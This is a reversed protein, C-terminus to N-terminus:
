RATSCCAAHDSRRVLALYADFLVDRSAHGFIEGLTSGCWDRIAAEPVGRSIALEVSTESLAYSLYSGATMPVAVELEEYGDLRLGSRGYALGKVDLSYGLPAPYRREFASYWEGLLQSGRLRRGASFDYITLVGGPALVRAAEPLFLDLDAYNLSGAATVLDFAQPLFPLHEAQGLLFLARPAVARRHDLMTLVPELGVVTKALPELAATSLGAGCGVDLALRLRTAETVHLHEGIRQVIRPHVPPRDRAYAAALRSSDYLSPSRRVTKV